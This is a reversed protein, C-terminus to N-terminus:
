ECLKRVVYEDQRTCKKVYVWMVEDMALSMLGRHRGLGLAQILELWKNDQDDDAVDWPRGPQFGGEPFDLESDLKPMGPPSSGRPRPSLCAAAQLHCLYWLGVLM